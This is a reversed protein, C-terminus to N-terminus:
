FGALQTDAVRSGRGPQVLGRDAMSQPEEPSMPDDLDTPRAPHAVVAQGVGVDPEEKVDAELVDAM